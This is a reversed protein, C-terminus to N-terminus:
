YYGSRERSLDEEERKHGKVDVLQRFRQLEADKGALARKADGRALCDRRM